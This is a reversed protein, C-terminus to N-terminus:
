QQFTVGLRCLHKRNILTVPCFKGRKRFVTLGFKVFSDTFFGDSNYQPANQSGSYDSCRELISGRSFADIHIVSWFGPNMENM